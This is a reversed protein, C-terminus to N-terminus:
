EEAEACQKFHADASSYIAHGFLRVTAIISSYLRSKSENSPLSSPLCLPKQKRFNDLINEVCSMDKTSVYGIKCYGTM